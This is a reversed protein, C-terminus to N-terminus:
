GAKGFYYGSIMGEYIPPGVDEGFTESNVNIDEYLFETVPEPVDSLIIGVMAVVDLINVGGDQNIDAAAIQDEDFEIMGLVFQVIAVVDLVNVIFDGNVDGGDFPPIYIQEASVAATGAKGLEAHAWNEGGDETTSYFFTDEESYVWTANTGELPLVVFWYYRAPETRICEDLLSLSYWKGASNLPDLSIINSTIAEGPKGNEDEAIEIKILQQDFDNEPSFSLYAYLRELMYENSLFFRDAAGYIQDETYYIPYGGFAPNPEESGTSFVTARDQGFSLTTLLTLILLKIKM